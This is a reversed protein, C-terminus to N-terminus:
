GPQDPIRDPAGARLAEARWREAVLRNHQVTATLEEIQNKLGAKETLLVANRERVEASDRLVTDIAIQLRKVEAELEDVRGQLRELERMEEGKPSALPPTFNRFRRGVYFTLVATVLTVLVLRDLDSLSAFM